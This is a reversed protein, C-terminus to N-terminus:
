TFLQCEIERHKELSLENFCFDLIDEFKYEM